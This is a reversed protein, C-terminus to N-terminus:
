YERHYSNGDGETDDNSYDYKCMNAVMHVAQHMLQRVAQHMM